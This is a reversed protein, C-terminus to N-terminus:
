EGYLIDLPLLPLQFSTCASWCVAGMNPKLLESLYRRESVTVFLGQPLLGTMHTSWVYHPMMVDPLIVEGADPPALLYNPIFKGPGYTEHFVDGPIQGTLIDAL